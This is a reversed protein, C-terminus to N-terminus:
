ADGSKDTTRGRAYGFFAAGGHHDGFAGRARHAFYQAWFVLAMLACFGVLLPQDFYFFHVGRASDFTFSLPMLTFLLALALQWGHRRTRHQTRRLALLELGPDPTPLMAALRAFAPNAGLFEEVLARSEASASGQRVLPLLDVIVNEHVSM